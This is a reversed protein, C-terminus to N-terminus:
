CNRMSTGPSWSSMLGAYGLEELYVQNFTSHRWQVHQAYQLCYPDSFTSPVLLIMTEVRIILIFWHIYPSQPSEGNEESLGMGTGHCFWALGDGMTGSLPPM